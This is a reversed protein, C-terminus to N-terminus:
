PLAEIQHNSMTPTVGSRREDRGGDFHCRAPEGLPPGLRRRRENRLQRWALQGTTRPAARVSHALSVTVPSRRCHHRARRELEARKCRGPAPTPRAGVSLQPLRSFM